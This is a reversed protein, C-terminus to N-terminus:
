GHQPLFLPLASSIDTREPPWPWLFFCSFKKILFEKSTKTWSQKIDLFHEDFWSICNRQSHLFINGNCLIKGSSVLMSKGKKKGLSNPTTTLTGSQSSLGLTRTRLTFNQKEPLGRPRCCGQRYFSPRQARHKNKSEFIGHIEKVLMFKRISTQCVWLLIQWTWVGNLSTQQRTGKGIDTPSM